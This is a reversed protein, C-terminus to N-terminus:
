LQLAQQAQELARDVMRHLHCWRALHMRNTATDAKLLSQAFAYADDWDACLRIAKDAAIWVESKGRRVCFQEKVREIDGEMAHGTKLLLVKGETRQAPADQAYLVLGVSAVLIAPVIVFRIITTM